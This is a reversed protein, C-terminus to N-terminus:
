LSIAKISVKRVSIGAQGPRIVDGATRLFGVVDDHPLPPPFQVGTDPKAQGGYPTPKNNVEHRRWKAPTSPISGGDSTKSVETRGSSSVGM